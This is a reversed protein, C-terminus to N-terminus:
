GNKNVVIKIKGSSFPLLKPLLPIPPFISISAHEMQPINNVLNLAQDESKGKLQQSLKATDIQPILGAKINLKASVSDGKEKLNSASVDLQDSNVALDSGGLKKSAFAVM